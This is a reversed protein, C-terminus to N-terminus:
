AAAPPTVENKDRARWRSRRYQALSVLSGKSKGRVARILPDGKFAISAKTALPRRCVVCDAM